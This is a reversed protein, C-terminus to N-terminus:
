TCQCVLIIDTHTGVKTKEQEVVHLWQENRSSNRKKEKLEELEKAHAGWRTGGSEVDLKRLREKLGHTTHSCLRLPTFKVLAPSPTFTHVVVSLTM